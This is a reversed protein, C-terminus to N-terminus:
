LGLAHKEPVHEEVGTARGRPFGPKWKEPVHELAAVIM